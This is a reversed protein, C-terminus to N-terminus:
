GITRSCRLFPPTVWGGGIFCQRGGVVQCYGEARRASNTDAELTRGKLTIMGLVLSGDDLESTLITGGEPLASPNPQLPRRGRDGWNWVKASAATMDPQANLIDRIKAQTTGKRFQYHLKIFEIEDGDSNFLQPMEIDAPDLVTEM